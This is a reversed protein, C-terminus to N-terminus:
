FREGPLLYRWQGQPLKGMAVGGIRIRRLATVQLGVSACLQVILGASPNKVVLRLHNESQWSAKVPALGQGRALLALGDPRLSGTVAVVYEQELRTADETLKRLTRWDQSFLQLGSAGAQLPLSSQQRAFHRRLTRPALAQEAWRSQPTILALAAADTQDAPRNLLLTVPPLPEARAGPLLAVPQDQLMFQPQDVVEGAVSVWGGEIYLEAERRSCGLLEVVRKSLRISESM